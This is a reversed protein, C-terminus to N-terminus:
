PSSAPIFPERVKRTLSAPSFKSAEPPPQLIVCKFCSMLLEDGNFLYVLPNIVINLCALGNGIQNAIYIDAFWRKCFGRSKWIRTQLNLNRFIHYPIFCVSFLLALVVVLRLCRLKLMNDGFDKSTALTFAVHGYCCVMVVLPIVFGTVTRVISYRLYKETSNTLTTDYCYLNDPTTKKYYVDPLSEIFVMIWVLATIGMSCRARIRGKVKLPHVISLYRYVSIVTLFGISGYLNISFLFRTLKCLSQGFIWKQEKAYYAVLLPLTLLYLIDAICLNLAFININGLKTWNARVSKLGFCNSLLGFVFVLVYVTSLFIHTFNFDVKECTSNTDM